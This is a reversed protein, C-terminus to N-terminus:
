QFFYNLTCLKQTFSCLNTFSCQDIRMCILLYMVIFIFAIYPLSLACGNMFLVDDLWYCIANCLQCQVMQCDCIYITYPLVFTMIIAIKCYLISQVTDMPIIELLAFLIVHHWIYFALRLYASECLYATESLCEGSFDTPLNVQFLLKASTCIIVWAIMRTAMYAIFATPGAFPFILAWM